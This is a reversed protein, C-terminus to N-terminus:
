FPRWSLLKDFFSDTRASTEELAEPGAAIKANYIHLSSALTKKGELPRRDHFLFGSIMPPPFQYHLAGTSYSGQYPVVLKRGSSLQIIEGTRTDYVFEFRAYNCSNDPLSRLPGWAVHPFVAGLQGDQDGLLMDLNRKIVRENTM